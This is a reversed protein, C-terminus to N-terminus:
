TLSANKGKGKLNSHITICVMDIHIMYGYQISLETAHFFIDFSTREHLTIHIFIDFLIAFLFSSSFFVLIDHSPPDTLSSDTCQLFNYIQPIRGHIVGTLKHFIDSTGSLLDVLTIKKKM